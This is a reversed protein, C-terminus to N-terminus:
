FAYTVALSSFNNKDEPTDLYKGLLASITWSPTLYYDFASYVYDSNSFDIASVSRNKGPSVSFVNFDLGAEANYSKELLGSSLVLSKENFFRSSAFSAFKSVDHSYNYSYASGSLRFHDGM